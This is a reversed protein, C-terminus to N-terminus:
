PSNSMPFAHLFSEIFIHEAEVQGLPVRVELILHLLRQARISKKRSGQLFQCPFRSLSVYVCAPHLPFMLYAIKMEGAAAV